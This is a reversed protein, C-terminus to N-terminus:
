EFQKQVAGLEAQARACGERMEHEKRLAEQRNSLRRVKALEAVRVASILNDVKEAFSVKLTNAAVANSAKQATRSL